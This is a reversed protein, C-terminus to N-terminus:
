RPDALIPVREIPMQVPAQSRTSLWQEAERHTSLIFGLESLLDLASSVSPGRNLSRRWTGERGLSLYTALVSWITNDILLPHAIYVLGSPSTETYSKNLQCSTQCIDKITDSLYKESDYCDCGNNQGHYLKLDQEVLNHHYIGWPLNSAFSKITEEVIEFFERMVLCGSNNYVRMNILRVTIITLKQLIM